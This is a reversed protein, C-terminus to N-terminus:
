GHLPCRPRQLHWEGRRHEDLESYRPKRLEYDRRPHLQVAPSLEPELALVGPLVAVPKRSRDFLAAGIREEIGRVRRTFAPQTLLRREAAAALSGTDIVALIDDIWDLQM